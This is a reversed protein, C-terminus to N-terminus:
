FTLTFRANIIGPISGIGLGVMVLFIGPVVAGQKFAMLAFGIFALAILKGWFGKLGNSIDTYWDQVETGGTGALALEPTLALALLLLSLIPLVKGKYLEWWVFMRLM